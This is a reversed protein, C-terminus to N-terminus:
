KYLLEISKDGSNVCKIIDPDDYNVIPVKINGKRNNYDYTYLENEHFPKENNVIIKRPDDTNMSLTYGYYYEKFINIDIKYGYAVVIDIITKGIVKYIAVIIGDITICCIKCNINAFFVLLDQVDYLPILSYQNVFSRYLSYNGTFDNKFDLEDIQYKTDKNIIYDKSNYLSKIYEKFTDKHNFFMIDYLSLLTYDSSKELQERKFKHYETNVNNISHWWVGNCEIALKIDPILIDIEYPKILERDHLIYTIGIEDLIDIVAQEFGSTKNHGIPNCIPCINVNDRRDSKMRNNFDSISLTIDGHEKCGNKIIINNDDTYEINYGRSKWLEISKKRSALKPDCRYEPLQFVNEVGYKDLITQRAKDQYEKIAFPTVSNFDDKLGLSKARKKKIDNGREKYAKKMSKSVNESNKKLVEPDKNSCAKSCYTSFGRNYKLPKGCIKCIPKEDIDNLIRYLSEQLSESDKYYNLISDIDINYNNLYKNNLRAPILKDTGNCLTDIIYQKINTSNNM